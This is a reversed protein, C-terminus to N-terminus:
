KLNSFLSSTLSNPAAAGAQVTSRSLGPRIILRDRVNLDVVFFGFSVSLVNARM